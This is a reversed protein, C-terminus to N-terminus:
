FASTLLNFGESTWDWLNCDPSAMQPVVGQLVLVCELRTGLVLRVRLTSREVKARHERM